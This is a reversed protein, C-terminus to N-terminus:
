MGGALCVLSINKKGILHNVNGKSTTFARWPRMRKQAMKKSEFFISVIQSLQLEQQRWDEGSRDEEELLSESRPPPPPFPPLLCRLVLLMTVM